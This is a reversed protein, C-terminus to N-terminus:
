PGSGGAQFTGRVQLQLTSRFVPFRAPNRPWDWNCLESYRVPAGRRSRRHSRECPQTLPGSHADGVPQGINSVLVDGGPATPFIPRTARNVVQYSSVGFVKAGAGARGQLADGSSPNTYSLLVADDADAATALTLRVTRDDVAVSSVTTATGDITVTFTDTAPISDRDLDSTYILVLASGSVVASQLRPPQDMAVMVTRHLDSWGVRHIPSWDLGTRAWTYSKHFSNETAASLAFEAGCVYLKLRERDQANLTKDVKMVLSWPGGGGVAIELASPPQQELTLAEIDYPQTLYHDNWTPRDVTLRGHVPAVSSWGYTIGDAVRYQAVVTNEWVYIRDTTDNNPCPRFPMVRTTQASTLTTTVDFDDTVELKFKFRTDIVRATNVRDEVPELRDEITTVYTRQTAGEIAAERPNNGNEDYSVRIWQYALAVAGLGDRDKVTSTDAELVHGVGIPTTSPTISVTGTTARDAPASLRLARDALLSWDLAGRWTYAHTSSTPSSESADRFAFAQNCVHLTLNALQGDSLPRDIVLRLGAAGATIASVTYSPAAFIFDFTTDNLGGASDTYGYDDGTRGLTVTTGTWFERKGSTNPATCIAAMPMATASAAAGGGESNVARMEFTYMQNNDLGTVLLQLDTGASVWVASPSVTAGASFRYEYDTIPTAGDSPPMTWTLRVRGDGPETGFSAPADPVTLIRQSSIFIRLAGSHSTWPGSDGSRTAHNDAISWAETGATGTEESGATRTVKYIDATDSGTNTNEFVVWYRTNKTLTLTEPTAPEYFGAGGSLVKLSNGPSGSADDYITAQQMANSGADVIAANISSLLYGNAANGTTFQQAVSFQVGNVNGVTNTGDAMQLSNGISITPGLQAVVPGAVSMSALGILMAMLWRLAHSGQRTVRLRSSAEPKREANTWDAGPAANGDESTWDSREREMGANCQKMTLEETTTQAGNHGQEPDQPTDRRKVQSPNGSSRRRPETLADM